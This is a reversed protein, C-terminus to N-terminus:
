IANCVYNNIVYSYSEVDYSSMKWMFTIRSKGCELLTSPNITKQWNGSTTGISKQISVRAGFAACFIFIIFFIPKLNMYPHNRQITQINSRKRLWCVSARAMTRHTVWGIHSKNEYHFVYNWSKAVTTFINEDIAFITPIINQLSFDTKWSYFFNCIQM